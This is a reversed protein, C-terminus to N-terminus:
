QWGVGVHRVCAPEAATPLDPDAVKVQGRNSGVDGFGVHRGPGHRGGSLLVVLVALLVLGALVIGFVKVWRPPGSRSDGDRPGGAKPGTGPRDPM